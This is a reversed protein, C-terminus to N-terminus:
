ISMANELIIRLEEMMKVHTRNGFHGIRYLRDNVQIQKTGGCIIVDRSDDVDLYIFLWYGADNGDMSISQKNKYRFFSTITNFSNHYHNKSLVSLISDFYDSEDSPYFAKVTEVTKEGDWETMRITIVDINDKEGVFSHPILAFAGIHIMLAVLLLVILIKIRKRM